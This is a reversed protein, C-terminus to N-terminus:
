SHEELQRLVDEIRHVADRLARFSSPRLDDTTTLRRFAARYARDAERLERLAAHKQDHVDDMPEPYPRIDGAATSDRSSTSFRGRPAVIREAWSVAKAATSRPVDDADYEARYIPTEPAQDRFSPALVQGGARTGIDGVHAIYRRRHGGVIPGSSQATDPADTRSSLVMRIPGTSARRNAVPTGTVAGHSAPNARTGISSPSKMTAFQVAEVPLCGDM